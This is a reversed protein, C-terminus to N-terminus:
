VANMVSVNLGSVRLTTLPKSGNMCVRPNLLVSFVPMTTSSGNVM